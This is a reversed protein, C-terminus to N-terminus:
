LEGVPNEEDVQSGDLRRVVDNLCGGFRYSNCKRGILVELTLQQCIEGALALQKDKVIEFM